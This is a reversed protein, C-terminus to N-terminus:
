PTYADMIELNARLAGDEVKALGLRQLFQADRTLTRSSMDAYFSAAPHRGARIDALSVSEEGISAIFSFLREGRVGLRGSDASLRERAFDRFSILRVEAIVEAHVATLEQVLGRLAFAVFPTLDDDAQFQVLRLCRIYEARNEYYYNALSYFGRANVGAQYLLYCEVARSARGNGDGFPHISVVYFHAVVARIAPHWRTRAGTNFWAIFESMLRRTDEGTQPPIYRGVTVRHNRYRGPENHPYDIGQTLIAHFRRILSESLPAHPERKVAEAAYLMLAEANRVEREERSATQSLAGSDPQSELIAAVEDESFEAGEIGVTGRAARIINLKDLRRQAYPPIPLNRIVSALADAQAALRLIEPDDARMRANFHVNWSPM